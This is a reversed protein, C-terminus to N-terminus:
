GRLATLFEKGNMGNRMLHVKGGRTIVLFPTGDAGYRRFESECRSDVSMNCETFAFGNGMLWRKATTCYGCETTSYMVVEDAKVTAALAALDELPLIM